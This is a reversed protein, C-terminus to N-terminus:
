LGEFLDTERQGGEWPPSVRVFYDTDLFAHQQEEPLSPLPTWQSYQQALARRVVPVYERVDLAATCEEEPTGITERDLSTLGHGPEAIALHDLWGQMVTRSHCHYYVRGPRWAPLDGDNAAEECAGATVEAIRVRDPSGYLGTPESTVVVHPKIRRIIDAIRAVVQDPPAQVFARPDSNHQSEPMGSDRYGLFEVGAAGFIGAADRVEAERVAGITDPTADVDELIAGAEGRTACVVSVEAGESVYRAITAGFQFTVQEPHAAIVLLRRSDSMPMM